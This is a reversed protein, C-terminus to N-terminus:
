FDSCHVHFFFLHERQYWHYSRIFNLKFICCLHFKENVLIGEGLYYLVKLFFYSGVELSFEFSSCDSRALFAVWILSTCVSLSASILSSFRFVSMDIIPSLPPTAMTGLVRSGGLHRGLSKSPPSKLTICLFEIKENGQESFKTKFFSKVIPTQLYFCIFTVM